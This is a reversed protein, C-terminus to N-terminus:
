GYGGVDGLVQTAAIVVGPLQMPNGKGSGWARLMPTSTDTGGVQGLSGGFDTDTNRLDLNVRLNVCGQIRCDLWGIGREILNPIGHTLGAATRVVKKWAGSATSTISHWAGSLSWAAAGTVNDPPPANQGMYLYGADTLAQYSVPHVGQYTI